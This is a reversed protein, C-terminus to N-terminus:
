AGEAAPQVARELFRGLFDLCLAAVRDPAAEHALHGLGDLVVAEARPAMAAAARTQEPPTMRDQDGAALLLPADLAALTAPMETLDWQALMQSVGRIHGPSALLRRYQAATPLAAGGAEALIPGALYPGWGALAYPAAPNLALAKAMAPAVAGAVGPLPTLAPGLGIVARAPACARAAMWVAIAAGASHGIIAAPRWDMAALLGTLAGAMGAPGMRSVFPTSTFGHGPLDPVLVAFREALLPALGAWSHSAAGTGHLLLLSPQAAPEGFVQLHWEIGDARVFRSHARHPWDGGDRRWDLQDFRRAM